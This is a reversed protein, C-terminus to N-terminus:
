ADFTPGVRPTAWLIPIVKIRPGVVFVRKMKKVVGREHHLKM